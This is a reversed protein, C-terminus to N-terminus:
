PRKRAPRGKGMRAAGAARVFEEELRRHDARVGAASVNLVLDLAADGLEGRHARFIERLRRKTRNRVVAGGHRGPVTLGIRHRETAGPRYFLVFTGGVLRRGGDYVSQFDLRRRLRDAATFRLASRTM